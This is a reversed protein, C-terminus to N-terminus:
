GEGLDYFGKKLEIHKDLLYSKIMGVIKQSTSGDGYMDTPTHATKVAKNMAHVIDAKIPEFCVVTEAMLRGKQRDGINVTPTGLVSAEGIGNSSNELVFDAYKVASLYHVMGLPSVLMVNERTSAFEEFIQNIINGGVDTNAKTIM